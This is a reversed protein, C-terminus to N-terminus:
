AHPDDEDAEIPLLEVFRGGEVLVNAWGVEDEAQLDAVTEGRRIAEWAQEPTWGHPVPITHVGDPQATTPAQPPNALREGEAIADQAMRAAPDDDEALLELVRKYADRENRLAACSPCGTWRDTM